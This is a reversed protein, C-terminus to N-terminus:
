EWRKGGAAKCDSKFDCYKCVNDRPPNANPLEDNELHYQLMEVRLDIDKFFSEEELEDYTFEFIFEDLENRTMYAIEGDCGFAYMYTGVQYKHENKEGYKKRWIIKKTTKTEIVLKIPTEEDAEYEEFGGNTYEIRRSGDENLHVHDIEATDEELVTWDAEGTISTNGLDITCTVDQVVQPTINILEANTLRKFQWQPLDCYHWALAAGYILEFEIGLEFYPSWQDPTENKRKYYNQRPCKGVSSAHFVRDVKDHRDPGPTEGTYKAELWSDIRKM